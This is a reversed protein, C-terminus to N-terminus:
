VDVASPHRALYEAPKGRVVALDPEPMSRPAGRLPCQPRVTYGRGYAVVLEQNLIGIEAAHPEGQPVMVLVRGDILELHEDEHFVDARVMEEYQELTFRRGAFRPDQRPMARM